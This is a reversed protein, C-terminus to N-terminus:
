VCLVCCLSLIWKDKKIVKQRFDAKKSLRSITVNMGSQEKNADWKRTAQQLLCARVHKCILGVEQCGLGQTHAGPSKSGPVSDALLSPNGSGIDPQSSDMADIM